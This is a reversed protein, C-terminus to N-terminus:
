TVPRLRMEERIFGSRIRDRLTIGRILRLVRVDVAKMRSKQRTNLVFCEFGYLLIRRIITSYITVKEELSISRLIMQKDLIGVNMSNMIREGLEADMLCNEDFILGHYIVNNVQKLQVKEM